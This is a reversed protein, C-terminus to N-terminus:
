CENCVAFEALDFPCQPEYESAKVSAILGYLVFRFGFGFGLNQMEFGAVPTTVCLGLNVFGLLLKVHKMGVDVDGTQM